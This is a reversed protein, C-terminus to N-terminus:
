ETHRALPFICPLDSISWIWSGRNALAIKCGRFWAVPDFFSSVPRSRLEWLPCDLVSEDMDFGGGDESVAITAGLIMKTIHGSDLADHSDHREHQKSSGPHLFLRQREQDGPRASPNDQRVGCECEHMIVPLCSQSMDIPMDSNEFTVPFLAFFGLIPDSDIFSLSYFFPDGVCLWLCRCRCCAHHRRPGSRLLARDQSLVNRVYRVASM